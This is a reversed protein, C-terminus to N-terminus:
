KKPTRLSSEKPLEASSKTATQNEAKKRYFFGATSIITREVKPITEAAVSELYPIVNYAGVTSIIFTGYGRSLRKIGGEAVLKKFTSYACPVRYNPRIAIIQNKYGNDLVNGFFGTTAGIATASLFSRQNASLSTNEKLSEELPTTALLGGVLLVNRTLRLPYGATYTKFTEAFTAPQPPKFDIKQQQLILQHFLWARRNSFPQTLTTDMLGILVAIALMQLTSTKKRSSDEMEEALREEPSFREESNLLKHRQTLTANKVMSSQMSSSLGKLIIRATGLSLSLPLLRSWASGGASAIVPGAASAPAPKFTQIRQLVFDAPYLAAATGVSVFVINAAERSLLRQYSVTEEIPRNNM